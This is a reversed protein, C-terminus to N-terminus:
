AFMSSLGEVVTLDAADTRPITRREFVLDHPERIALPM